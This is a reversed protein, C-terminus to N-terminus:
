LLSAAQSLEQCNHHATANRVQKQVLDKAAVDANELTWACM